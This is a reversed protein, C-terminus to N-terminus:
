LQRQRHLCTQWGQCPHLLPWLRLPSLYMGHKSSTHMHMHTSMHRSTHPHPATISSTHVTTHTCSGRPRARICLDPWMLGDLVRAKGDMFAGCLFGSVSHSVM